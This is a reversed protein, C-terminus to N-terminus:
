EACAEHLLNLQGLRVRSKLESRMWGELEKRRKREVHLQHRVDGLAAEMEQLRWRLTQWANVACRTACTSQWCNRLKICPPM